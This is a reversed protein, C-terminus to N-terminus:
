EEVLGLDDGEPTEVDPEGTPASKGKAAPTTRAISRPRRHGRAVSSVLLFYIVLVGTVTLVQWSKIVQILLAILEKSM